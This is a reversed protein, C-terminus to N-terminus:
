RRQFHQEHCEPCIGHTLMAGTRRVLFQELQEWYGHDDRLKKCWACVPLLNTLAAVEDHAERLQRAAKNRETHDVFVVVHRQGVAAAFFEIERPSGDKCTVRARMPEIRSQGAVAAHVRRFWEDSIQARYAPDPYALPWWAHVTPVDEATYGFVETFRRNLRSAGPQDHATAVEIVLPVPAADFLQWFTADEAPLEPEAHELVRTGIPSPSLRGRWRLAPVEFSDPRGTSRVTAARDAVLEAVGRDIVARLAPRHCLTAALLHSTHPYGDVVVLDPDIDILLDTAPDVLDHM